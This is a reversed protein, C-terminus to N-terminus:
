GKDNQRLRWVQYTMWLALGFGALAMLDFLARTRNSLGLEGGLYTAAIWFVATGVMVLGARRGAKYIKNDQEAGM